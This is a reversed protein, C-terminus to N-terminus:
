LKLREKKSIGLYTDKIKEDELLDSAKGQIVIEGRDLVCAHDAIQLAAKVNQEILLITTGFTKKMQKLINMIDKVILPALGLSPEDLMMLKPKAMLGRGIAVMQQEGGSLLGGPRDLMTKLKPFFDLVQEFDEMVSKKDNKYRHYSGLLLNDKVSLDDFIQRREPVLCIGKEVIKEVKGYSIEENEFVITGSRPKYIGAITGLLTSKGAGNSGVMAFIEGQKIEFHIGKLVHLYGHYTHLNDVVLM